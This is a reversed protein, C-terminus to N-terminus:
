RNAQFGLPSQSRSVGVIFVHSNGLRSGDQIGVGERFV